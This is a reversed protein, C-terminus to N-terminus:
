QDRTYRGMLEAEALIHGEMETLVEDKIVGTELDLMCDLAYLKFYYRHVDSPPCPGGYGTKGWSNNGEIIGNSLATLNESFHTTSAPINCLIWHDWTGNPADPDDMILVFSQTNPPVDHWSLEPSIDHSDCTFQSPIMEEASFATSKLEM